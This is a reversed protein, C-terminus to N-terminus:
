RRACPRTSTSLQIARERVLAGLGSPRRVGEACMKVPVRSETTVGNAPTLRFSPCCRANGHTEPFETSNLVRLLLTKGLRCEGGCSFSVLHTVFDTVGNHSWEGLLRPREYLM